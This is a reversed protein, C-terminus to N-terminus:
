EVLELSSLQLAGAPQGNYVYLLKASLIGDSEYRELVFGDVQYLIRSKGKMKVRSGIKIGTPETLRNIEEQEADKAILEKERLRTKATEVAIQANVYKKSLKIM